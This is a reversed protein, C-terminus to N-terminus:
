RYYGRTAMYTDLDTQDDGSLSSAFFLHITGTWSDVNTPKQGLTSRSALALNLGGACVTSAGSYEIMM